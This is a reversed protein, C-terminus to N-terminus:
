ETFQPVAMSAPKSLGTWINSPGGWILMKMIRLVELTIEWIINRREPMNLVHHCNGSILKRELSKYTKSFHFRFNPQILNHFYPKLRFYLVLKLQFCVYCSSNMVVWDYKYVCHTGWDGLYSTQVVLCVGKCVFLHSAVTRYWDGGEAVQIWACRQFYPFFKSCVVAWLSSSM